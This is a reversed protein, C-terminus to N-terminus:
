SPVSSVLKESSRSCRKDLIAGVTQVLTHLNNATRQNSDYKSNLSHNLVQQVDTLKITIISVHKRGHSM